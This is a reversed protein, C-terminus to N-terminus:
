GLFPFGFAEGDAGRPDLAGDLISPRRMTREDTSLAAPTGGHRPAWRERACRQDFACAERSGGLGLGHDGTACGFRSVPQIEPQFRTQLRRLGTIPSGVGAHAPRTRDKRTAERRPPSQGQRVGKVVEGGTPRASAALGAPVTLTMVSRSRHGHHACSRVVGVAEKQPM